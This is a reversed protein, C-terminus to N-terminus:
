RAVFDNRHTVVPVDGNFGYALRWEGILPFLVADDDGAGGVAEDVELWSLESVAANIRDGNLVPNRGRRAGVRLQRCRVNGSVQIEGPREGRIGRTRVRLQSNRWVSFKIEATRASLAHEAKV